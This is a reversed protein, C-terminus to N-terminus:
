LPILCAWLNVREPMVVGRQIQFRMMMMDSFGGWQFSLYCGQCTMWCWTRERGVPSSHNIIHQRQGRHFLLLQKEEEQREKSEKKRAPCLSLDQKSGLSTQFYFKRSCNDQGYLSDCSHYHWRSGIIPISVGTVAWVWLPGGFRCDLQTWCSEQKPQSM